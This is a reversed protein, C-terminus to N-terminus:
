YKKINVAINKKKSNTIYKTKIYDVFTFETQYKNNAIYQLKLWAEKDEMISLIENKELYCM